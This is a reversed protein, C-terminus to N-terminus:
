IGSNLQFAIFAIPLTIALSVAVVFLTYWGNAWRVYLPAEEQASPDGM